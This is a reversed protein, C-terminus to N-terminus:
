GWFQLFFLNRNSLSIIAAQITYYMLGLHVAVSSPLFSQEINDEFHDQVDLYLQSHYAHM